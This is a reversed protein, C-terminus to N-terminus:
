CRLIRSRCSLGVHALDRRAPSIPGSALLRPSVWTARSTLGEPDGDDSEEENTDADLYTWPTPDPIPWSWISTMAPRAFQCSASRDSIVSPAPALWSSWVILSTLISVAM